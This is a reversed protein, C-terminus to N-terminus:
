QNVGFAKAANRLRRAMDKTRRMPMAANADAAGDSASRACCWRQREEAV